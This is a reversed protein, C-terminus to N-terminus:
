FSQLVGGGGVLTARAKGVMLRCLCSTRVPLLTLAYLLTSGGVWGSVELGSHSAPNVNRIGAEEGGLTPCLKTLLFSDPGMIKHIACGSPLHIFLSKM